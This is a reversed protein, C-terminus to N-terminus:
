KPQPGLKRLWRWFTAKPTRETQQDICKLCVDFNWAGRGVPKNDHTNGFIEYRHYAKAELGCFDCIVSTQRM